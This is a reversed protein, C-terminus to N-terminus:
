VAPPTCMTAVVTRVMTGSAKFAGEPLPEISGGFADVLRRFEVVEHNQRFAVGMGMVSVLRGGPKLFSLAHTVHRVDAFRAFPPNMVVRDVRLGIDPTVSLFDATRITTVGDIAFLAARHKPDVEVCWVDAGAAAAARAIAGNGASPELVTMGPRIDALDILQDVIPPPTPFFQLENRQDVVTGTLLVQEIADAAEGDFIHAKKARNWKGGAAVLVKNVKEYMPRDLRETIVAGPGSAEVRDLVALVDDSVRM